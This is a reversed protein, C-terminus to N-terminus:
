PAHKRMFREMVPTTKGRLSAWPVVAGEVGVALNSLALALHFGREELEFIVPQDPTSQMHRDCTETALEADSSDEAKQLAEICATRLLAIGEPTLVDPLALQRGTRLDFTHSGIWRDLHGSVFTSGSVFLSLLGAGNTAVTFGREFSTGPDADACISAVTPLPLANAIAATAASNGADVVPFSVDVSCEPSEQTLTKTEITAAGSATDMEAPAGRVENDSSAASETEGACGGACVGLLVMGVVAAPMANKVAM